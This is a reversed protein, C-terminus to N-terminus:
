RGVLKDVLPLEDSHVPPRASITLLRDDLPLYAHDPDVILIQNDSTPGQGQGEGQLLLQMAWHLPIAADLLM